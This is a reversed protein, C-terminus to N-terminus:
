LDGHDDTLDHKPRFVSLAQGEVALEGDDLHLLTDWRVTQRSVQLAKVSVVVSQDVQVCLPRVLHWLTTCKGVCFPHRVLIPRLFKLTQKAYVVGPYRSGILAPFLSSALLGPVIPALATSKHIHNSDGTLRVFQDVDRQAFSRSSSHVTRCVSVPTQFHDGVIVAYDRRDNVVCGVEVGTSFSCLSASVSALINCGGCVVNRTSRVGSAILSM